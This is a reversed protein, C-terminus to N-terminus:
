DNVDNDEEAHIDPDDNAKEIRVYAPINLAEEDEPVWTFEDQQVVVSAKPQCFYANATFIEKIMIRGSLNVVAHKNKMQIRNNVDASETDGSIQGWVKFLTGSTLQKMAINSCEDEGGLQHYKYGYYGRTMLNKPRYVFKHHMTAGPQLKFIRKKVVKYHMNFPYSSTPKYTIDWISTGVNTNFVQTYNSNGSAQLLNYKGTVNQQGLRMLAVPNSSQTPDLNSDLDNQSNVAVPGNAYETDEKCIIDYIAVHMDYNTPNFIEYKSTFKSFYIAQNPDQSNTANDSINSSTVAGEPARWSRWANQCYQMGNNTFWFWKCLDVQQPITDVVPRNNSYVFPTATQKKFRKNIKRQQQKTVKQKYFTTVYKDTDAKVNFTGGYTIRLGRRKIYRGKSIKKDIKMRNSHLRSQRTRKKYGSYVSNVVPALAKAVKVAKQLSKITTDIRPQKPM